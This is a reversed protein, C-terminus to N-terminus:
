SWGEGLAERLMALGRSVRSKVTGPRVGLAEATERESLGLVHRLAVARRYREPLRDLERAVTEAEERSVADDAPDPPSAEPRLRMTAAERRNWSRASSRATNAVITTFWPRFGYEPDFRGIARWAKVTGEQLADDADAASRTILYAARHAVPAHRRVLAAFAVEDGERAREALARDDEFRDTV